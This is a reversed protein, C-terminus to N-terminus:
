RGSNACIPFGRDLGTRTVARGVPGAQFAAHLAACASLVAPALTEPAGATLLIDLPSPDVILPSDSAFAVLAGLFRVRPWVSPPLVAVDPAPAGAVPPVALDPADSARPPAATPRVARAHVRPAIPLEAFHLATPAPAGAVLLLGQSLVLAASQLEAALRVNPPLVAGDLAPADAISPPAPAPADPAGLSRAVLRPAPALASLPKPPEALLPVTSAPAGATPLLDRSPARPALLPGAAPRVALVPVPAGPSPAQCPAPPASDGFAIARGCCPRRILPLGNWSAFAGRTPRSPGQPKSRM